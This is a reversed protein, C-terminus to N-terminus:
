IILLTIKSFLYIQFIKGILLQRLALLIREVTMTPTWLNELEPMRVAGSSPDINPHWIKTIFNVSIPRYPYDIPIFISLDFVGNGYPSGIPGTIFASLEYANITREFFIGTRPWNRNLMMLERNVRELAQAPDIPVPGMLEYPIDDEYVNLVNRSIMERIILTSLGLTWAEVNPEQVANQGYREAVRVTHMRLLQILQVIEPVSELRDAAEVVRAPLVSNEHVAEIPAAVSPQIHEANSNNEEIECPQASASAVEPSTSARNEPEVDTSAKRTIASNTVSMTESSARSDASTSPSNDVKVEDKIEAKAKKAEHGIRMDDSDSETKISRSRKQATGFTHPEHASKGLGMPTTVAQTTSTETMKEETETKTLM